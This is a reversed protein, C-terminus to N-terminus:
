FPHLYIYIDVHPEYGHFNEESGECSLLVNKKESEEVLLEIHMRTESVFTM